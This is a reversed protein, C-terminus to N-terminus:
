KGRTQQVIRGRPAKQRDLGSSATRNPVPTSRTLSQKRKMKAKNAM